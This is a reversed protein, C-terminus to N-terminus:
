STMSGPEPPSTSGQFSPMEYGSAVNHPIVYRALGSMLNQFELGQPMFGHSQVETVTRLKGDYYGPKRTLIIKPMVAPTVIKQKMGETLGRFYIRQQMTSRTSITETVKDNSLFKNQAIEVPSSYAMDRQSNDTVYKTPPRNTHDIKGGSAITPRIKLNVNKYVEIRSTATEGTQIQPISNNNLLKEKIESHFYAQTPIEETVIHQTKESRTDNLIHLAKLQNNINEALFQDITEYRPVDMTKNMTEGVFIIKKLMGIQEPLRETSRNVSIEQHDVKGTRFNAKYKTYDQSPLRDVPAGPSVDINPDEVLKSRFILQKLTEGQPSTTETATYHSSSSVDHATLDSMSKEVMKDLNVNHLSSQTSMLTKNTGQNRLNVITKETTIIQFNQEKKILEDQLTNFGTTESQSKVGSKPFAASLDQTLFDHSRPLTISEAQTFNYDLIKSLSVVDQSAQSEKMMQLPEVQPHLNQSLMRGFAVNGPTNGALRSNSIVNQVSVSQSKIKQPAMRGRTRYQSIGLVPKRETKNHLMMNLSIEARPQTLQSIRKNKFTNQQIQTKKRVSYMPQHTTQQNNQSEVEFATDESNSKLDFLSGILKGRAPHGFLKSKWTTTDREFTKMLKRATPHMFIGEEPKWTTSEINLSTMDQKVVSNSFLNFPTSKKVFKQNPITPEECSYEPFLVPGCTPKTRTIPSARRENVHSGVSGKLSLPGFDSEFGFPASDALYMMSLVVIYFNM